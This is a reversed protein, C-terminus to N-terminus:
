LPLLQGLCHIHGCVIQLPEFTQFLPFIKLLPSLLLSLVTLLRQVTSRLWGNAFSRMILYGIHSWRRFPKFMKWSCQFPQLLNLTVQPKQQPLLLHLLILIKLLLILNHSHLSSLRVLLPLHNLLALTPTLLTFLLILTLRQPRLLLVQLLHKSYTTSFSLALFRAQPICPHLKLPTMRTLSCEKLSLQLMALSRFILSFSDFNLFQNLDFTCTVSPPSKPVNQSVNFGHLMETFNEETRKRKPEPVDAAVEPSEIYVKNIKMHKVNNLGFTKVLYECHENSLDVKFHEFVKTLLMDYPVTFNKYRSNSAIIMHNIIIHALNLRTEASPPCTLYHMILLDNDLVKDKSGTHPVLNFLCLSHLLKFETKLKSAVHIEFIREDGVDFFRRILDAKCAIQTGLLALYNFEM